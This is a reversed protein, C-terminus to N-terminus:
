GAALSKGGAERVRRMVHHANCPLAQFLDAGAGFVAEIQDMRTFPGLAALTHHADAGRVEGLVRTVGPDFAPFAAVVADPKHFRALAALRNPSACVLLTDRRSMESQFARVLLVDPSALIMFM